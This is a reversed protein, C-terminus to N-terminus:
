CADRTHCRTKRQVQPYYALYFADKEKKGGERGGEEAHHPMHAQIRHRDTQTHTHARAHTRAHTRAHLRQVNVRAHRDAKSWPQQTLLGVLGPAAAGHRQPGVSAVHV